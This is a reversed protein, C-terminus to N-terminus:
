KRVHIAGELHDVDTKFASEWLMLYFMFLDKGLHLLYGLVLDYNQETGLHKIARDKNKALTGPHRLEWRCARAYQSLFKTIQQLHDEEVSAQNEEDYVERSLNLMGPGVTLHPPAQELPITHMNRCLSLAKGRRYENGSMSARFNQVLKEEAFRYHLAGLYDGDGPQWEHQRLLRIRDSIDERKLANEFGELSFRKPLKGQHMEMPNSFGFALKIDLVGELLLPLVGYKLDAIIKLCKISLFQRPNPLDRYARVPQSYLNPFKSITSFMPVWSPNNSEDHLEEALTIVRERLVEEEAFGDALKSWLFGLWEISEWAQPAYCNLLRRHIRKFIIEKQEEPLEKIHEWTVDASLYAQNDVIQLGIAFHDNRPNSFRGWRGGIRGKFTVIWAGNPWNELFFQLEYHFTNRETKQSFLWLSFDDEGQMETSNCSITLEKKWGSIMDKINLSVLDIEDKTSFSLVVKDTHRSTQFDLIQHPAVLRLLDESRQSEHDIFSLTDAGPGLSDVLGALPIRVRGVRDFNVIRNFTGLRLSGNRSSFIELVERSRTSVSLTSGKKVPKETMGQEQYDLLQQFVGPVSWTFPQKRNETVQFVMRFLRQDENKFTVTCKEFDVKVNDCESQLLNNETPLKSCHFQTRTTVRQLGNWLFIASRAEARQFGERKLEVLLRTLGPLWNACYGALDIRSHGIGSNIPIEVPEGLAGPRMTLVYRVTSDFFLEEPIKVDISLDATAFLENGQVGRYRQGNWVLAPKTDSCFQVRALGRMLEFRQSPDLSLRYVFLEPDDSLYEVDDSLGTPEFRLLLDYEGPELLLNEEQGLQGRGVFAGNDNFILFRNNQGDEWLDAFTTATGRLDSVTVKGPLEANLPVFRSEIFGLHDENTDNIEIRWLSEEGPPLEIGLQGDRFLVKPVALSKLQTKKQVPASELTHILRQELESSSDDIHLHGSIAKIFLRIYFGDSDADIAKQVSRSLYRVHYLLGQQWLRIADPDDDDPLGVEGAHRAMKHVLDELYNLPVGAQRLYEEIMYNSGSRRPSVSLGLRLCAGRFGEWLKERDKTSLVTNLAKEIYPYVEFNGRTGYGEAVYQDLYTSFVAPWKKLAELFSELPRNSKRFELIISVKLASYLFNSYHGLFPFEGQRIAESLKKELGHLRVKTTTDFM